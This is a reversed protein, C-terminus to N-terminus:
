GVATYDIKAKDATRTCNYQIAPIDSFSEGVIDCQFGRRGKTAYIIDKASKCSVGKVTLDIVGADPEGINPCKRSGAAAAKRAAAASRKRSSRRALGRAAAARGAHPGAPGQAADEDDEDEDDEDDEPDDADDHDAAHRRAAAHHEARDGVREREAGPRRRRTLLLVAGVGVVFAVVLVAITTLSSREMCRVTRSRARRHALQAAPREAPGGSRSDQLRSGRPDAVVRPAAGSAPPPRAGFRAREARHRHRAAQLRPGGRDAGRGGRRRARARDLPPRQRAGPEESQRVGIWDEGRLVSARECAAVMEALEGPEVSMAHDPVDPLTKDITYHKEICVGGLAATMWAGAVGRTHDSFGILYPDFERRFSDLRAFHGDPDPTPYTLTCVLLALQEPGLGMWEIADRIEQVTSAGTALLM